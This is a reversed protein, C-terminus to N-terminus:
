AALRLEELLEDPYIARRVLDVISINKWAALEKAQEWVDNPFNVYLKHRGYEPLKSFFKLGKQQGGETILRHIRRKDVGTAESAQTISAYQTYKNTEIDLAIVPVRKRSHYKHRRKTM